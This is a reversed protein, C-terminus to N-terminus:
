PIWTTSLIRTSSKMRPGMDEWEEEGRAPVTETEQAATTGDSTQISPNERRFIDLIEADNSLDRWESELREM